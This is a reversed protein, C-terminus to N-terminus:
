SVTVSDSATSVSRLINQCSIGRKPLIGFLPMLNDFFWTMALWHECQRPLGNGWLERTYLSGQGEDTERKRPVRSGGEGSPFAKPVSQWVLSM